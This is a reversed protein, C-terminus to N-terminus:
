SSKRRAEVIKKLRIRERPPVHLLEAVRWVLNQEYEHLVGDSYVIEWLMEIIVLHEDPSLAKSLRRTFTYIDVAQREEVRALKMLENVEEGTLDFRESLLQVLRTEEAGELRGDILAAHLLLAAAAIQHDEIINKEATPDNDAVSELFHKLRNLM